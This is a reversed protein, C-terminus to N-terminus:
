GAQAQRADMPRAGCLEALDAAHMPKGIHWGQATDCGFTALMDLAAATEVGEAVVKFGLEHALDITSRVMAQDGRSSELGLVFGKDIKIERAPLRKLYSLTSLGTGYDDISLALGMGALRELAAIAREPDAMTASETVELTLHAVAGAHRHLVTELRRVFAPDAPLLASLNVAVDLEVGMTAWATRDVLAQELVFLTLDAIRGNEELAPIFADPPVPGRTPHRWRVLAEAATIQRSAIALKPQYAVWIHGQAMAQDLEAALGLRWESQQELDATFHAWRLGRALATDAASSARAPADAPTNTAGTSIPGTSISGTSIPGAEASGTIAAVGFGFHLEVQRGHIEFAPRLMAVAADLREAEEDDDTTSNIWGLAGDDIRHIASDAAFVLRHAVLTLLEAAHARGLVSAVDGFNAVRIVIASGRPTARALERFSRANPLGTETDVHRAERAAHLASHVLMALGGTLLALLAPGVSFVGLGSVKTAMPLILLFAAGGFLTANRGMGERRMALGLLGLAVLMPLVPGHDFPASGQILTEAALIQIMPGAIVGRGPVPYRDGLEIASAGILVDRGKLAGAPVKGTMLDIFSFRPVSAPDISGDIPFGQDARGQRSQGAGNALTAGMSPRPLGGTMVGYPYTHVLGDSDVFINVAAMQAKDRLAPLPLNELVQTSGQSSAQRFTPLIVPARSGAIAQALAADQDARSPASFDVDFAITSAGAANLRAIAQAYYTRPWPWNHLAALSRADIEVLAIRGTAAHSLLSWRWVQLGRDITPGVSSVAAMVGILLGAILPVAGRRIRPM